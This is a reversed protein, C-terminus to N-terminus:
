WGVRLRLRVSIRSYGVMNSEIKDVKLKLKFM